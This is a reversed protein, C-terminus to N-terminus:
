CKILEKYKFHTNKAIQDWQYKESLKIANPIKENIKDKNAFISRLAKSIGEVTNDSSWGADFEEIETKMNTGETVLCPLGYSLAELLGMSHGEFRSTLIFFDSELAIKEKSEGFVGDHVQIVEGLNKEKISHLIKSRSDLQSPGYINITCRNELLEEKLAACALLLLDLGKQYIDLRGIFVGNLTNLAVPDKVKDKKNIGNPIVINKENWKVGSSEMENKTLYQIALANKAFKDFMLKNALLKKLRKKMQAKKTLSSRPIIIYPIGKKVLEKAIKCYQSFYFGQFVVLDYAYGDNLIINSKDGIVNCKVINSKYPLYESNLNCWSVDDFFSQHNVQAPVSYTLGQEKEGSLTSIYLIKM